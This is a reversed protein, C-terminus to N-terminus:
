EESKGTGGDKPAQHLSACAGEQTMDGRLGDRDEAGAHGRDQSWAM